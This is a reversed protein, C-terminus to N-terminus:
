EKDFQLALQLQEIAVDCARLAADRHGGFDHNARQMRNKAVELAHLAHHLEPHRERGPEAHLNPVFAFPLMGASVLVAAVFKKMNTPSLPSFVAVRGPNRGM